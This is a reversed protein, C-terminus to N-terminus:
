RETKPAPKQNGAGSKEPFPPIKLSENIKSILKRAMEITEKPLSSINNMCSLESRIVKAVSGKNFKIDYDALAREVQKVLQDSGKLEIKDVGVIKLQKEYLTMVRELYFDASFIDEISFDRGSVDVVEGLSLVSASTSGYRSLWTKVLKDKAQEGAKDTDLLVTVALKQGIMITAIYAAESAGGAPTIFIDDNLGIEKTRKFLNSLESIIWYDDVGEVVLNKESLLYSLSGSMGLAAQLVFRAEPQSTSLDESVVAGKNTENIIRIRDPHRLDIMFPLHTTYILVNEKAYEELRRLLDRQADPHLHLGPEDLLIVCNKFTGKTEYMFLLDFSFFWQFGKSREELRILSPDKEDKVFTHFFHGDARFQVEYRRQKWRDAIERTLTASADDLDYQRQEKVTHEKSNGKTVEDDLSLGSLEMIMILTRDEETLANSDRRQKVQDLQASGSFTRYDSMYIFTPLKTVIYNHAKQHITPTKQLNDAIRRLKGVYEGAYATENSYQPQQKGPIYAEQLMANHKTALDVLETFRGEFALRITEDICEKVKERFANGVDTSPISLSSCIEDIDNPHLKEPFIGPPFAVELRGAYDKAIDLHQLTMKQDTIKSLEDIEEQSLEFRTVCIVRQKDREKRHGRPWENDMSYPDPKFPNFKHLSRLLATKGSENKGVVVTLPSVNIFGSDLINRYVQIQFGILKM